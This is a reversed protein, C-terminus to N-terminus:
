KMISGWTKFLYKTCIQSYSFIKHVFIFWLVACVNQDTTYWKSINLWLFWAEGLYSDIPQTQKASCCKTKYHQCIKSYYMLKPGTYIHPHTPLASTTAFVLSFFALYCLNSLKSHSYIADVLVWMSSFTWWLGWISMIISVTAAIDPGWWWNLARCKRVDNM